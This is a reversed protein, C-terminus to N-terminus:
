SAAPSEQGPPDPPASPPAADVWPSPALAHNDGPVEQPWASDIKPEPAASAAAPADPSSGFWEDLLGIDDQSLPLSANACLDVVNRKFVAALQTATKGPATLDYRRFRFATLTFSISARSVPHGQERCKDRLVASVQNPNTDPEFPYEAILGFLFRYDDPHLRPCGTVHSVKQVLEGLHPPLEPVRPAQPAQEPAPERLSHREPDYVLISGGGANHVVIHPDDASQLLERLSGAGEWDTEKFNVKLDSILVKGLYAADIPRDSAALLSRVHELVKARRQAQDGEGAAVASPALGITWVSSESGEIMLETRLEALKECLKRLTGFGFWRSDSTFSPNRRFVAILDNPQVRGHERVYAVSADAIAELSNLPPLDGSKDGAKAQGRNEAADIGLAEEIFDDQHVSIDAAARYPAATLANTVVVTRRDHARLRLLVPTFDADGSLIIFEDFRTKHELADLLDMVMVIDASNKGRGTLAPCDIVSFGARTFYPRFAGFSHPNLYCRRLLITRGPSGGDQASPEGHEGKAFWALWRDPQQAFADAARRDADRLALYINDFDVFLAARRAPRADTM